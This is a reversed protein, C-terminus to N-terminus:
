MKETISNDRRFVCVPEGSLQSMHLNNNEVFEDVAAKVGKKPLSSSSILINKNNKYNERSAYFFDEFSFKGDYDDFLFLTESHSLRILENCELTVTEYNHDGDIMIIDFIESCKKLFELSNEERLTISNEKHMQMFSYNTAILHPQIRIDVGTYEFPVELCNLNNMLAFLSVGTDVGIELIKIPKRETASKLIFLDKAYRSLSIIHGHYAM